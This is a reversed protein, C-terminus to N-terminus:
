GGTRGPDSLADDDPGDSGIRDPDSVEQHGAGGNPEADAPDGPTSGTPQADAPQADTPQADATQADTPTTSVQPRDSASERVSRRMDDPMHNDGVDDLRPDPAPADSHDTGGPQATIVEDPEQGPATV